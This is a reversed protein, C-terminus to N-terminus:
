GIFKEPISGNKIQEWEEDSCLKPTKLVHHGGGGPTLINEDTRYFVMGLWKGKDQSDYHFMPLGGKAWEDIVEPKIRKQVCLAEYTEKSGFPTTKCEKVSWEYNEKNAMIENWKISQEKRKREDEEREADRAEALMAELEQVRSM